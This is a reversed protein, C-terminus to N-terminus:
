VPYHYSIVIAQDIPILSLTQTDLSRQGVPGAFAIGAVLTVHSNRNM